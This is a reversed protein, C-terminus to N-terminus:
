EHLDAAGLCDIIVERREVHFTEAIKLSSERFLVYAPDEQCILFTRDKKTDEEDEEYKTYKTVDIIMSTHMM